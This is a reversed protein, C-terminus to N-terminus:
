AAGGKLIHARDQRITQRRQFQHDEEAQHCLPNGCTQRQMLGDVPEAEITYPEREHGEVQYGFFIGLCWPCRMGLNRILVKGHREERETGPQAFRAKQEDRWQQHERDTTLM